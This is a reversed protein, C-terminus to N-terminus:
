MYVYIHMPHTIRVEREKETLALKFALDGIHKSLGQELGDARPPPQVESPPEKGLESAEIQFTPSYMYNM